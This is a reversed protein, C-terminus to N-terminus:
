DTHVMIEVEGYHKELLMMVTIHDFIDFTSALENIQTMLNPEVKGTNAHQMNARLQMKVMKTVKDNVNM